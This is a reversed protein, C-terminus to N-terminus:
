RRRAGILHRVAAEVGDVSLAYMPFIARIMRISPASWAREPEPNLWVHRDYHTALRRLWEIGETRNDHWYSIAGGVASLEAPHMWADGVLVLKWESGHQKLVEPVPVGERFTADKYLREYICNHFRFTKLEKFGRTEHFATFLRDVVHVHADMTGGVDTLLLIKLHNRRPPRLVIDLEGANRCTRDITTDLDLEVDLGQRTLQRLRRLAVKFQRVDLTVDTRYERYHREGAVQVASRGGGSGMVRLGEPHQGGHGFPSTGGTGVWRDGGDHRGTQERLREEFLRKLEDLDYRKLRALEEPPLLRALERAEALWEEVQRAVDAREVVKGFHEAFVTDFADYWAESKVLTARCVHYFATFDARHLGRALAELLTLYETLTVPVRAARLAAFFRFFLPTPAAHPTTPATNV